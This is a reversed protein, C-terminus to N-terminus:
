SAIDCFEEIIQMSFELCCFCCSIFFEVLLHFVTFDFLYFSFYLEFSLKNRPKYYTHYTELTCYQVRKIKKIKRKKYHLAFFKCFVSGKTM